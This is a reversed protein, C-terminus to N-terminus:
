NHEPSLYDLGIYVQNELGKGGGLADREEHVGEDETEDM